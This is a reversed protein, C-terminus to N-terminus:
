EQIREVAKPASGQVADNFDSTFFQSNSQVADPGSIPPNSRHEPLKGGAEQAQQVPHVDFGLSMLEVILNWMTELFERKQADSLAADDLYHDYLSYDFTIVPRATGRVSNYKKNKQETM